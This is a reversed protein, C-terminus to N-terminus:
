VMERVRADIWALVGAVLTDTDVADLIWGEQDVGGTRDWHTYKATFLVGRSLDHECTVVVAALADFNVYVAGDVGVSPVFEVVYNHAAEGFAVYADTITKTSLM